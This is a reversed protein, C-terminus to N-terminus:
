LTFLYLFLWIGGRWYSQVGFSRVWFETEEAKLRQGVEIASNILRSTVRGREGEM